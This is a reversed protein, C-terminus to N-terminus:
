MFHMYVCILVQDSRAPMWGQFSIKSRLEEPFGKPKAKPQGGGWVGREGKKLDLTLNEEDFRHFLFVKM